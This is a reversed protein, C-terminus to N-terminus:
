LQSYHSRRRRILVAATTGLVFLGAGILLLAFIVSKIRQEEVTDFCKFTASSVCHPEFTVIGWWGFGVLTLGLAVAAATGIARQGWGPLASITVTLLYVLAISAVPLLWSRLAIGAPVVIVSACCAFIIGDRSATGM